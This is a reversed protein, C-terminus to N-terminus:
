VTTDHKAPVMLKLAVPFIPVCRSLADPNACLGFVRGELRLFDKINALRTPLTLLIINVIIGSRMESSSM